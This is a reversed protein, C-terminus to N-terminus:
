PMPSCGSGGASTIADTCCCGAIASTNSAAPPTFNTEVWLTSHTCAHLCKLHPSYWGAPRLSPNCIATALLTKSEKRRTCVSLCVIMLFFPIPFPLLLIYLFHGALWCCCCCCSSSFLPPPLRGRRRSVRLGVVVCGHHSRFNRAARHSLRRGVRKLLEGRAEKDKKKQWAINSSADLLEPPDGLLMSFYRPFADTGPHSTPVAPCLRSCVWRWIM